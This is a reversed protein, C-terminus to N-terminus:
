STETSLPKTLELWCTIIKVLQDGRSKRLPYARIWNEKKDSYVCIAEVGIRIIGGVKILYFYFSKTVKVSTLGINEITFWKAIGHWKLETNTIKIQYTITALLRIVSYIFAVSGLIILIIFLGKLDPTKKILYYLGPIFLACGLIILPIFQLLLFYLIDKSELNINIGKEIELLIQKKEEDDVEYESARKEEIKQKKEEVDSIGEVGIIGDILPRKKQNNKSKKEIEDM